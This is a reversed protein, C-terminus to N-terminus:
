RRRAPQLLKHSDLVSGTLLLLRRDAVALRRAPATYHTHKGSRPLLLARSWWGDRGCQRVLRRTQGLVRQLPPARGWLSVSDMKTSRARAVDAELMWGDVTASRFRQLATLHGTPVSCTGLRPTMRARAFGTSLLSELSPRCHCRRDIVIQMVVTVM